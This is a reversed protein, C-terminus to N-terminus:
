KGPPYLRLTERVCAVYYPCHELVEDYQPTASLGGARTAADIEAMVKDYVPTGDQEDEESLVSHMLAQFATATTDAGALLILLVEAKIYELSLPKGEEDRAEIFRNMVFSIRLM